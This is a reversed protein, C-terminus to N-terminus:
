GGSAADGTFRTFDLDPQGLIGPVELSLFLIAENKRQTM